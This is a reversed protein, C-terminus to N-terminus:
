FCQRTNVIRSCASRRAGKLNTSSSYNLLEEISSYPLNDIDQSSVNDISETENGWYSKSVTIPELTVTASYSYLPCFFVALIIIIKRM